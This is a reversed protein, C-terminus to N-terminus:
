GLGAGTNKIRHKFHKNKTNNSHKQQATKSYHTANTQNSASRVPATSRHMRTSHQAAIMHHTANYEREEQTNAHIAKHIYKDNLVLFKHKIRQVMAYTIYAQM